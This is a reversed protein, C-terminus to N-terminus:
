KFSRGCGVHISPWRRLSDHALRLASHSHVEVEGSRMAAQDANNGCGAFTRMISQANVLVGNQQLDACPFGVFLVAEALFSRRWLESLSMESDHICVCWEVVIACDRGGCFRHFSCACQLLFRDRVPFSLDVAASSRQPARRRHHRRSSKSDTPSRYRQASEGVWMQAGCLSGVCLNAASTHVFGQSPRQLLIFFQLM